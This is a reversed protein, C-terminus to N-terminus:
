ILDLTEVGRGGSGILAPFKVLQTVLAPKDIANAEPLPLHIRVHRTRGVTGVGSGFVDLDDLQIGVKFELLAGRDFVGM